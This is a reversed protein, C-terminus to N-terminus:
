KGRQHPKQGLKTAKREGGIKGEEREQYSLTKKKPHHKQVGGRRKDISDGKSGNGKGMEQWEKIIQRKKGEGKTVSVLGHTEEAREEAQKNLM